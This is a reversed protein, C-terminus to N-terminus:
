QPYYALADGRYIVQHAQPQRNEHKRDEYAISDCLGASDLVAYVNDDARCMNNIAARTLKDAVAPSFPRINNSMQMLITTNRRSNCEEDKVPAGVTFGFGLVAAGGGAATTCSDTSFSGYLGPGVINPVSKVSQSSPAYSNISQANGANTAGSTSATQASSNTDSALNYTPAAIAASSSLALALTILHLKM